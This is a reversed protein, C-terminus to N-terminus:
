RVAGNETVKFLGKIRIELHRQIDWFRYSICGCNCHFVLPFKVPGMSLIVNRIVTLIKLHSLSNNLSVFCRVAERRCCLKKYIRYIYKWTGSFCWWHLRCTHLLALGVKIRTYRSRGQIKAGITSRPSETLSMSDGDPAVFRAIILSDHGGLTRWAM